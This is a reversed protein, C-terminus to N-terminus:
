VNKIGDVCINNKIEMICDKVYNLTEEKGNKMPRPLALPCGISTADTCPAIGLKKGLKVVDKRKSIEYIIHKLQVGFDNAINNYIEVMETCQPFPVHSKNNAMVQNNGMILEKCKLFHICIYSALTVMTCKCLSCGINSDLKEGIEMNKKNFIADYYINDPLEIIYHGIINEARKQIDEGSWVLRNRYLSRSNTFSLLVLQRDQHQSAYLVSSVKSDLGGSFLVVADINQLKQDGIKDQIYETLSGAKNLSERVIVDNYKINEPMGSCVYGYKCRFCKEHRNIGVAEIPVTINSSCKSNYHLNIRYNFECVDAYEVLSCPPINKVTFLIHNSFCIKCLENVSCIYEEKTVDNIFEVWITNDESFLKKIAVVGSENLANIALKIILQIHYKCLLKQIKLIEERDRDTFNEEIYLVIHTLNDRSNSYYLVQEYAESLPLEIAIAGVCAYELFDLFIGVNKCVEGVAVKIGNWYLNNNVQCIAKKIDTEKNIEIAYFDKLM